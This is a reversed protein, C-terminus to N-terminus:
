AAARPTPSSSRPRSRRALADHVRKDLANLVVHGAAQRDAAARAPGDVRGPRRGLRRGGLAHAHARGDAPELTFSTQMKIMAGVGNGKAKLSAFELEREELKEFDITLELSGLGLPVQM